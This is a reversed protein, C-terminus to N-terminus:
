RKIEMLNIDMCLNILILAYEFELKLFSWAINEFLAADSETTFTEILLYIYQMTVKVIVKVSM